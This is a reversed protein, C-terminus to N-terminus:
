ESGREQIEGSSSHSNGDPSIWSLGLMLVTLLMVAWFFGKRLFAGSPPAGESQCVRSSTWLRFLSWGTLILSAIVLIPRFRELLEFRGVLATGAGLSALVVPIACCGASLVSLLFGGFLALRGTPGKVAGTM